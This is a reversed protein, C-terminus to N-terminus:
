AETRNADQRLKRFAWWLRLAALQQQLWLTM